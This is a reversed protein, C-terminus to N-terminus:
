VAVAITASPLVTSGRPLAPPRYHSIVCPHETQSFETPRVSSIQGRLHETCELVDNTDSTLQQVHWLGGHCQCATLPCSISSFYGNGQSRFSILWLLLHKPNCTVLALDWSVSPDIHKVNLSNRHKPCVPSESVCPGSCLSGKGQALTTRIWNSNVQYM